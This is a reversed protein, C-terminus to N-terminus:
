DKAINRELDLKIIAEELSKTGTKLLIQNEYEESLKTRIENFKNALLYRIGDIKKAGADSLISKIALDAIKEATLEDDINNGISTYIVTEINEFNLVTKVKVQNITPNKLETYNKDDGVKHRERRWLISKAYNLDTDDKLVLLTAKVQEGSSAVPILTPAGGRSKSSRAYEVNFPTQCKIKKIILPEIEEGANDILSGYALIAIKNM